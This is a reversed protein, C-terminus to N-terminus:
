KIKDITKKCKKCITIHEDDILDKNWGCLACNNSEEKLKDSNYKKNIDKIVTHSVDFLKGIRRYSMGTNILDIVMDNRGQKKIGM